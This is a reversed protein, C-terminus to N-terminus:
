RGPWRRTAGMTKTSATVGVVELHTTNVRNLADYTYRDIVHEGDLSARQDTRSELNGVANWDCAISQRHTIQDPEGSGIRHPDAQGEAARHPRPVDGSQQGPRAQHPKQKSRGKEDNTQWFGNRFM